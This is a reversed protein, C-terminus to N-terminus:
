SIFKNWSFNKPHPIPAGFHNALRELHGLRFTETGQDPFSLINFQDLLTQLLGAQAGSLTEKLDIGHVRRGMRM